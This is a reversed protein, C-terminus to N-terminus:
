PTNRLPRHDSDFLLSVEGTLALINYKFTADRYLYGQANLFGTTLAQGDKSGDETAYQFHNELLWVNVSKQVTGQEEYAVQLINLNLLKSASPTAIGALIGMIALVVLMEILTFGGHNAKM